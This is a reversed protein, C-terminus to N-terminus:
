VLSLVTFSSNRREFCLWQVDGIFGKMGNTHKRTVTLHYVRRSKKFLVRIGVLIYTAFLQRFLNEIVFFRKIIHQYGSAAIGLDDTHKVPYGALYNVGPQM